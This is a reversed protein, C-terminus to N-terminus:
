HNTSSSKDLVYLLNRFINESYQEMQQPSLPPFNPQHHPVWIKNNHFVVNGGVGPSACRYLKKELNSKLFIKYMFDGIGRSFNNEEYSGDEYYIKIPYRTNVSIDCSSMVVLRIKRKKTVPVNATTVDPLFGPAVTREVELFQYDQPLFRTFWNQLPQIILEHARGPVILTRGSASLVFDGIEDRSLSNIFIRPLNRIKKLFSKLKPIWEIPIYPLLKGNKTEFKFFDGSSFIFPMGVLQLAPRDSTNMLGRLKVTAPEMDLDTLVFEKKEEGEEYQGPEEEEESSFDLNEYMEVVEKALGVIPNDPHITSNILDQLQHLKEEFEECMNAKNM